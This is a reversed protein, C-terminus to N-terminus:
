GAILMNAQALSESNVALANRPHMECSPDSGANRAAYSEKRRRGRNTCDERSDRNGSHRQPPCSRCRRDRYQVLDHVDQVFPSVGGAGPRLHGFESVSRSLAITSSLM